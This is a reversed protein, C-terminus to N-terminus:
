TRVRVRCRCAAVLSWALAGLDWACSAADSAPPLDPEPAVLLVKNSTRSHAIRAHERM